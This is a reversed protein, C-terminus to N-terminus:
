FYTISICDKLVMKDICCSLSLSNSDGRGNKFTLKCFGDFNEKREKNSANGGGRGTLISM